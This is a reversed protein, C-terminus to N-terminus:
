RDQGAADAGTSDTGDADTGTSDTGSTDTGDADTGLPSDTGDADAPTTTASPRTTVMDEDRLTM